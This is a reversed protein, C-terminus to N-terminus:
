KARSSNATSLTDLAEDIAKKVAEDQEIRKRQELIGAADANGMSALGEIAAKRISVVGDNVLRMLRSRAEPNHKGVESLIQVAQKRIDPPNAIDSYM